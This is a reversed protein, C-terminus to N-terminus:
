EKDRIVFYVNKGDKRGIDACAMERCLDPEDDLCCKKCDESGDHEVCRVIGLPELRFSTNVKYEKM